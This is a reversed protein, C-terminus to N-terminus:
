PTYVLKFSVQRGHPLLHCPQSCLQGHGALLLALLYAPRVVYDGAGTYPHNDSLVRLANYGIPDKCSSGPEYAIVFSGVSILNYDFNYLNNQTTVQKAM